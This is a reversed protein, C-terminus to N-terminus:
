IKFFHTWFAMILKCSICLLLCYLCQDNSSSQCSETM